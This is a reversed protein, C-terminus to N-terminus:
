SLKALRDALQTSAGTGFSLPRRRGHPIRIQSPLSLPLPTWRRSEGTSACTRRRRPSADPRSRPRSRATSASSTRPRRRASAARARSSTPRTAACRSSTRCRSPSSATASACRPRASGRWSASAACRSSSRRGSARSSSPTATPPRSSRRAAASRRPRRGRRRPLRRGRLGAGERVRVRVGRRAGPADRAARAAPRRLRAREPLGRVGRPPLDSARAHGLRRPRGAAREAEWLRLLMNTFGVVCNSGSRSRCRTTPATRSRTATSPSCRSSM